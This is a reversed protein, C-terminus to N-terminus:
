FFGGRYSSARKDIEVTIDGISSPLVVETIINEKVNLIAYRPLKERVVSSTGAAVRFLIKLQGWRYPRIDLYLKANYNEMILYVPKGALTKIDYLRPLLMISALDYAKDVGVNFEPFDQLIDGNVIEGYDKDFADLDVNANPLGVRSFTGDTNFDITNCEHSALEPLPWNCYSNRIPTLDSRNISVHSVSKKLSGLVYVKTSSSLKYPSQSNKTREIKYTLEGRGVLFKSFTYKFVERAQALNFSMLSIVLSLVLKTRM